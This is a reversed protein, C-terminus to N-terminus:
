LDDAFILFVGDTDDGLELWVLPLNPYAAELAAGSNGVEIVLIGKPNLYNKAQQLIKHVLLLGDTGAALALEPEHRYEEPLDAMDEADVYPPNNIIIDYRKKPLQDFLNSEYLHVRNQLEHQAINIAAVELADKSLDSADVQAHPFRHACAIAICASGTCLDLINKVQKAAVWPVFENAILQAMPSRPILVREDVYFPMDCFWAQKTLYPVPTKQEIRQTFLEFLQASQEATLKQSLVDKTVDPPLQLVYILIAVAEDWANDTGHGFYLNANNFEKEAWMLAQEVTKFQM